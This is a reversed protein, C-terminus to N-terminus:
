GPGECQVVIPSKGYKRRLANIVNLVGPLCVLRKEMKRKGPFDLLSVGILMTLLGQGPLILMAIGALLFIAGAVNKLILTLTRLVPHSDKMWTQKRGEDFYDHPLRILIPPIALLTGVFAVLSLVFIAILFEKPLISEVFALGGEALEQLVDLLDAM